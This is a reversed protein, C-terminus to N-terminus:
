KRGIVVWKAYTQDFKGGDYTSADYITNASQETTIENPDYGQNELFTVAQEAKAPTDCVYVSLETTM